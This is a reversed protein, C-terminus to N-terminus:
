LSSFVAAEVMVLMFLSVAVVSPFIRNALSNPTKQPLEDKKKIPSNTENKRTNLKTLKRSIVKENKPTNIVIPTVSKLPTIIKLRSKKENKPTVRTLPTNLRSKTENKRTNRITPKRLIVKESKPPPDFLHYPNNIEYVDHSFYYQTRSIFLLQYKLNKLMKTNIQVPSNTNDSKFAIFHNQGTNIVFVVDRKSLNKLDLKNLKNSKYATIRSGGSFSSIVVIIKNYVYAAAGVIDDESWEWSGANDKIYNMPIAKSIKYQESPHKPKIPNNSKLIDSVKNETIDEKEDEDILQDMIVIKACDLRMQYLNKHSLDNNMAYQLADFFCNGDSIILGPGTVPQNQDVHELQRGFNILDDDTINVFAKAKEDDTITGYANSM